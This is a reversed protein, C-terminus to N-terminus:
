AVAPVCRPERGAVPAAKSESGATAHAPLEDVEDAVVCLLEVLLVAALRTEDDAVSM